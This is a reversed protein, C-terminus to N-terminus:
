SIRLFTKKRNRWKLRECFISILTVEWMRSAVGVWQTPQVMTFSREVFLIPLEWILKFRFQANWITFFPNPELKDRFNKSFPCRWALDSLSEETRDIRFPLYPFFTETNFSRQKQRKGEASDPAFYFNDRFGNLQHRHLDFQGFNGGKDYSETQYSRLSLPCGVVFQGGM